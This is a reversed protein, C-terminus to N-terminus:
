AESKETKEEETPAEGDESAEPADVKAEEASGDAAVDQTVEEAKPEETADAVEGASQATDKAEEATSDKKRQEEMKAVEILQLQNSLFEQHVSHDGELEKVGAIIGEVLEKRDDWTQEETLRSLVDQMEQTNNKRVAEIYDKIFDEKNFM